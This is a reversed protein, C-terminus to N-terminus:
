DILECKTIKHKKLEPFNDSCINMANSWLQGFMLAASTGLGIQKAFLRRKM